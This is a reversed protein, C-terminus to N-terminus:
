ARDNRMTASGFAAINAVLHDPRITSTLVTSVGRVRATKALELPDPIHGSAMAKKVLVGVGCSEARAVIPVEDRYDRHITCMLVDVQDLAQRADIANKASYGVARIVDQQKLAQLAAIAGAAAIAEFPRGDAHVTVIDLHDRRLRRCSAEVSRTVGAATFDFTSRNSPRAADFSEGAKTAIVFRPDNGVIDGIRAEALGYAPATDLLTVGQNAAIMVLREITADDPLADRRPLKLDLNRGWKVTGLGLVPVVIGTAGLQRTPIM